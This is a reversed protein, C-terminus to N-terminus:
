LYQGPTVTRVERKKEQEEAQVLMKVNVIREGKRGSISAWEDPNKTNPLDENEKFEDRIARKLDDASLGKDGGDIVRKLAYKKARAVINMVMAGSAFDKFYLVEREGRSYTLELFRNDEDEAYM